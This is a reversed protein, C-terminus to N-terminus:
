KLPLTMERESPLDSYGAQTSTQLHLRVRGRGSKFSGDAEGEGLGVRVSDCPRGHDTQPATTPHNCPEHRERVALLDCEQRRREMRSM